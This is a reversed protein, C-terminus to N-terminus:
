PIGHRTGNVPVFAQEKLGVVQLGHLVMQQLAEPRLALEGNM